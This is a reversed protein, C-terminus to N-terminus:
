IAVNYRIHYPYTCVHIGKQEWPEIATTNLACNIISRVHEEEFMQFSDSIRQFRLNKHPSRSTARDKCTSTTKQTDSPEEDDSFDSNDSCHTDKICDVETDHSHQVFM